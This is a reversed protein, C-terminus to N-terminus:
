PNEQRFVSPKRKRKGSVSLNRKGAYGEGECCGDIKKGEKEQNGYRRERVGIIPTLILPKTTSDCHYTNSM